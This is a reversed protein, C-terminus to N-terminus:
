KSRKNGPRKSNETFYDLDDLVTDDGADRRDALDAAHDAFAKADTMNDDHPNNPM